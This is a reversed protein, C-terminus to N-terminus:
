VSRNRMTIKSRHKRRVRVRHHSRNNYHQFFEDSKFLTWPQPPRDHLFTRQNDWIMNKNCFENKYFGMGCSSGWRAFMEMNQIMSSDVVKGDITGRPEYPKPRDSQSMYERADLDYHSCTTRSCPNIKKLYPDYHDAILVKALDVNLKGKNENMMEQLRVRRAGQHRRLDDWGTNSSELNRIRPDFAVNFGIFFGNKTRKVDAYKLGLEFRMIENTRTDGFLWANAYDGSNRETLIAVYDDATNGYQMARRIRCCIPDNNEYANFGGLTTETGFLGCSTVFFDTGSHIGGPFSQMLIRHGNSPRINLMVCSYQGTIYTDFSNHACVIKGDTTYDGVAIFASCRDKAGGEFHGGSKPSQNLFESYIPKSLLHANHPEKLVNSLNSFLYDFSVFCNWFIIKNLPQKSGDSIGIMEQYFESFNSKIQSDFFDDILECFFPFKRGYNDYLFTELMVMIEKIENALLKGHAFGREYPEGYITLYIWGNIDKRFGKLKM